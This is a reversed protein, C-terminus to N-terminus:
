FYYGISLTFAGPEYISLTTSAKHTDYDYERFPCADCGLGLSIFFTNSRSFNIDMGLGASFTYGLYSSVVAGADIFIYPMTVATGFYFRVEGVISLDIIPREYEFRNPGGLDAVHRPSLYELGTKGGFMWNETLRYNYLGYLGIKKSSCEESDEGYYDDLEKGSLEVGFHGGRQATILRQKEMSRARSLRLYEQYEKEEATQAFADVCISMLFFVMAVNFLRNMLNDIIAVPEMTAIVFFM